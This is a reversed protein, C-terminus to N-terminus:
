KPAVVNGSGKDTVVPSGSTYVVTNDDGALNVADVSDINVKNRDSIVTLSGGHGAIFYESDSGTINVVDVAEVSVQSRLAGTSVSACHGTVTFIGSGYLTLNGNNCDVTRKQGLSAGVRLAGGRPVTTVTSTMGGSTLSNTDDGRDAKLASLAGWGILAGVVTVLVVAQIPFKRRMTFSSPRPAAVESVEARGPTQLLRGLEDSLEAIRRLANASQESGRDHAQADSMAEALQRELEAIRERPADPEM